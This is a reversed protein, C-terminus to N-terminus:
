KASPFCTNACAAGVLLLFCGHLIFPRVYVVCSRIPREYPVTSSTPFSRNTGNSSPSSKSGSRSTLSNSSPSTESVSLMISSAFPSSPAVTGPNTAPFPPVFSLRFRISSLLDWVRDYSVTSSSLCVVVPFSTTAAKIRLEAVKLDLVANLLAFYTLLFCIFYWVRQRITRIVGCDSHLASKRLSM